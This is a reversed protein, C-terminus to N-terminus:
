VDERKLAINKYCRYRASAYLKDIRDCLSPDNLEAVISSYCWDRTPRNVKNGKLDMNCLESNNQEIARASLCEENIKGLSIGMPSICDAYAYRDLLSLSLLMVTPILIIASLIKLNINSVILATLLVSVFIYPLAFAPFVIVGLCGEGSCTLLVFVELITAIVLLSVFMIITTKYVIRKEGKQNLHRELIYIVILIPALALLSYLYYSAIDFIESLFVFDKHYNNIFLQFISIALIPVTLWLLVYRGRGM